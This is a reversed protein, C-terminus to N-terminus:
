MARINGLVYMVGEWRLAEGPQKEGKGWAMEWEGRRPQSGRMESLMGKCLGERDM